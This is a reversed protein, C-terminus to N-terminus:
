YFEGIEIRSENYEQTYNLYRAVLDLSPSTRPSLVEVIPAKM